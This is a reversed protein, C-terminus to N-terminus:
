TLFIWGGPHYYDDNCLRNDSRKLRSRQFVTAFVLIISMLFVNFFGDGLKLGIVHFVSKSNYRFTEVIPIKALEGSDKQQKFAPTEEIGNRIWLALGILVVSLLFPIRWGWSL